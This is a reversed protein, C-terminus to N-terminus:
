RSKEQRDSRRGVAFPRRRGPQLHSHTLVEYASGVHCPGPTPVVRVAEHHGCAELAIAPPICLASTRAPVQFLAADRQRGIRDALMCLAAWGSSGLWGLAGFQRAPNLHAPPRGSNSWGWRSREQPSNGGAM